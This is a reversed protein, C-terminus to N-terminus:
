KNSYKKLGARKKREKQSELSVFTLNKNVTACSISVTNIKKKM